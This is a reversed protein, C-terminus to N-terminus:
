PRRYAVVFRRVPEGDEDEFVEEFDTQVLGNEEFRSLDKRSLPWPLQEPEDDDNRGRCVVVLEANPAVFSSVADIVEPRMEIPLPQITYIELVFEFGGLWGRFPQFLDAIEFQIDRDKHLRKAWEIATPSIDFATVKFGLDDLYIADDGLGCGVVLAKRGNGKLNNREAWEKFFRNPELDAWPVLENNGGSEKYLAEFWGLTDGRAEFEAALERARARKDFEPTETM